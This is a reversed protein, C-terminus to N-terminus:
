RAAEKALVHDPKRSPSNCSLTATMVVHSSKESTQTFAKELTRFVDPTLGDLRSAYHIGGSFTGEAEAMLVVDYIMGMYGPVGLPYLSFQAATDTGQSSDNMRVDDESMYVDGASDGPCGISFTGSFVVHEGSEAAHTFIAQVVNFVHEHRGRVCTSVDDSQLWVKSTDTAELADTIISVFRSSMPYVSFRCGAIRSTGCVADSDTSQLQSM